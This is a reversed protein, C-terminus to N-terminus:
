SLSFRPMCRSVGSEQGGACDADAVDGRDFRKEESTTQRPLMTAAGDIRERDFDLPATGLDALPIVIFRMIMEKAHAIKMTVAASASSTSNTSSKARALSRATLRRCSM